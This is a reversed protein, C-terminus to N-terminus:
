GIARRSALDARLPRHLPRGRHPKSRGRRRTRSEGLTVPPNGQPSLDNPQPEPDLGVGSLVIQTGGDQEGFLSLRATKTGTNLPQFSIQLNCTAGPTLPIGTCNEDILHFSGVAGGSVVAIFVGGAINGANTVDITKTVGPSGVPVSGFNVPNVAPEFIARGGEGHLDANVVLGAEAYAHLQASFPVADYPGFYVQISCTEGPNLTRICDTQGTSFTGSGGSVSFSFVQTAVSGVNRLQLATQNTSGNLQVVGFDYSSPEFALQPAPPEEGGEPPAAAALAPIAALLVCIAVLFTAASAIRASEPKSRLSFM